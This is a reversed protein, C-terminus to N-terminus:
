RTWARKFADFLTAKPNAKCIRIVEDIRKGVVEPDWTTTRQTGDLYGNMYILIWDREEAREIGAFEGCTFKKIEVKGLPALGAEASLVLAASALLAAGAIRERAWVGMSISQSRMLSAKRSGAM